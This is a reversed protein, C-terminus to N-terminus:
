LYTTDPKLRVSRHYHAVSILFSALVLHFVVPILDGTWRQDPRITMWVAYRLIMTSAYLWGVVWLPTVLWRHPRVFYGRGRSFQVCVVGLVALIVLQSALLAAYPMLGSQWQDMPPLFPALGLVVALQGAVRLAFLAFLMWLLMPLAVNVCVDTYEVSPSPHSYLLHAVDTTDPKLRIWFPVYHGAQAPGLVTRLTRSSGPGFRYMTDPKLRAWFPVYHGAKAPGKM